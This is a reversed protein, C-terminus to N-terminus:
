PLPGLRRRSREICKERRYKGEVAVQITRTSKLIGHKLHPFHIADLGLNVVIFGSLDLMRTIRQPRLDDLRRVVKVLVSLIWFVERHALLHPTVKYFMAAVIDAVRM